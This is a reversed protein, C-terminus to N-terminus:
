NLLLGSRWKLLRQGSTAVDIWFIDIRDHSLAVAAQVTSFMNASDPMASPGVMSALNDLSITSGITKASDVFANAGTFSEWTFAVSGRTNAAVHAFLGSGLQTPPDFSAGADSSRTAWIKNASQYGLVMGGDALMVLSPDAGVSSGGRVPLLREGAWTVGGDSSQALYLQAGAGARKDEWTAWLIDGQGAVAVDHPVADAGAPSVANTWDALSWGTGLWARTQVMGRGEDMWAVVAGPRGTGRLGAHLATPADLNGSALTLPADWLTRGSQTRAVHVTRQTAVQETWSVILEGDSLLGISAKAYSGTGVKPLTEIVWASGDHRGHYGHAGDDWVLRLMGTADRLAVPTNNFALWALGTAPVTQTPQWAISAAAGLTYIQRFRGAALMESVSGGYGALFRVGRLTVSDYSGLPWSLLAPLPGQTYPAVGASCPGWGTGYCYLLGGLEAVLFHEAYQGQDALAAETVLTLSLREPAGTADLRWGVDRVSGLALAASSMVLAALAVLVGAGWWAKRVVSDM